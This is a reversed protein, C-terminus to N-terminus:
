SCEGSERGPRRRRRSGRPPAQRPSSGCGTRRCRRAANPSAYRLVEGHPAASTMEHPEEGDCPYHGPVIGQRRKFIGADRQRQRAERTQEDAAALRAPGHGAHDRRQLLEARAEDLEALREGGAGIQDAFLQGPIEAGQAVTHGGKGGGLGAGGHGARQTWREVLEKGGELVLGDGGGRDGLDVMRYRAIALRNGDLNEPRADLRREAAINLKEM